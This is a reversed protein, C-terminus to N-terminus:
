EDHKVRELAAYESVTVKYEPVERRLLHSKWFLTRRDEKLYKHQNQIRYGTLANQFREALKVASRDGRDRWVVWIKRPLSTHVLQLIQDLRDEELSVVKFSKEYYDFSIEDVSVVLDEKEVKKELEAIINQWSVVFNPNHFEEGAYYNKVSYGVLFMLAGALFIQPKGRLLSRDTVDKGALLGASLILYFFPIVFALHSSVMSKPLEYLLLTLAYFGLPTGIFALLLGLVKKNERYL